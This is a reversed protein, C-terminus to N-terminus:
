ADPVETVYRGKSAEVRHQGYRWASWALLWGGPMSVVLCLWRQAGFESLSAALTASLMPWAFWPMPERRAEALSVFPETASM